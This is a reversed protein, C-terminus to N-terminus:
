RTKQTPNPPWDPMELFPKTDGRGIKKALYNDPEGDGEYYNMGETISIWTIARESPEMAKFRHIRDLFETVAISSIQMNISLVAPREVPLNVIYKEEKRREYEIPSKRKLSAAELTKFTYAGRTFLSSGGPQLFHM